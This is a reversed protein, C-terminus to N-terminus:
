DPFRKPSLVFDRISIVGDLLKVQRMSHDTDLHVALVDPVGLMQMSNRASWDPFHEASAQALQRNGSYHAFKRMICANRPRDNVLTSNLDFLVLKDACAEIIGALLNASADPNLASAGTLPDVPM